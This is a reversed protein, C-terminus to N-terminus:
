ATAANSSEASAVAPPLEIRGGALYILRVAAESSMNRTRGSALRSVSPQSLGVKEGLTRTSYGQSLLSRAVAGFDLPPADVLGGHRVPPPEGPDM